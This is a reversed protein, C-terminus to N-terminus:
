WPRGLAELGSEAVITRGRLPNVMAVHVGREDEFIGIRVPVAFTALAAAVLSATHVPQQAVVVRAGYNCRARGTGVAHDALRGDTRADACRGRRRRRRV